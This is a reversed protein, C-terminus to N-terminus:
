FWVEPSLDGPGSPGSLAPCQFSRSGSPPVGADEDLGRLLTVEGGRSPIWSEAKGLGGCLEEAGWEPSSERAMGQPPRPPVVLGGIERGWGM